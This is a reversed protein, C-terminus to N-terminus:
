GPRTRWTSSCGSRGGGTARARFVARERETEQKVGGGGSQAKWPPNKLGALVERAPPGSSEIVDAPRGDLGLLTAALATKRRLAEEEDEGEAAGAGMGIGEEIGVARQGPGLLTETRGALLSRVGASIAASRGLLRQKTEPQPPPSAPALSRPGGPAWWDEEQDLSSGIGESAKGLVEEAGLKRPAGGNEPARELQSTARGNHHDGV